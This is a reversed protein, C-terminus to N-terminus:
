LPALPDSVPLTSVTERPKVAPTASVASAAAATEAAGVGGAPAKALVPPQVVVKPCALHGHDDRGWTRYKWSDVHFRMKAYFGLGANFRPGQRQHEACLRRMMAERGIPQLPVFDIASMSRHVSEPAGGACRNLAENRFVSVPEVPGVAPVVHDRVYRLTNVINAWEDQAPVEFPEAGCRRWDSATRLLQWTPAVYSVGSATLYDHFLRVQGARWPAAAIWQRYGPEDQGPEVYDAVPNWPAPILMPQASHAAGVSPQTPAPTALALAFLVFALSRM